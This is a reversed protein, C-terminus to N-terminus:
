LNGSLGVFIGRHQGSHSTYLNVDLTAHLTKGIGSIPIGAGIMALVDSDGRFEHVRPQTTAYGVGARFRFGELVGHEATVMLRYVEGDTDSGHRLRGGLLVSPTVHLTILPFSQFPLDIGIDPGELHVSHGKGDDFNGSTTYGVHIRTSLPNPIQSWGLGFIGLFLLSTAIKMMSSIRIPPAILTM